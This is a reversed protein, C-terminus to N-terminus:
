SPRVRTTGCSSVAARRSSADPESVAQSAPSRSADALLCGGADHAGRGPRASAYRCVPCTRTKGMTAPLLTYFLSFRLVTGGAAPPVAERPLQASPPAFRGAFESVANYLEEPVGMGPVEHVELRLEHGYKDNFSVCRAELRLANAAARSDFLCPAAEAAAVRELFGISVGNHLM